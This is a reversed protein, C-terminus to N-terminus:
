RRLLESKKTPISRPAARTAARWLHGGLAETRCAIIDTIARRHSPLLLRGKGRWSRCTTTRSAGSAEAFVRGM